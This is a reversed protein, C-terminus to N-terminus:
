AASYRVRLSLSLGVLISEVVSKGERVMRLDTMVLNTTIEQLSGGTAPMMGPFLLTEAVALWPWSVALNREWFVLLPLTPTAWNFLFGHPLKPQLCGGRESLAAVM